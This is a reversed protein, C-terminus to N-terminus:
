RPKAFRGIFLISGTNRDRILFLFPRDARFLPIFNLYDPGPGEASTDIRAAIEVGKENIEVSAKHLVNSFCLKEMPDLSANMGSFDAGDPQSPDKFARVMGMDQLTGEM